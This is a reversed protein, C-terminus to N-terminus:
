SYISKYMDIRMGMKQLVFDSEHQMTNARVASPWIIIIIMIEVTFLLLLPQSLVMEVMTLTTNSSLILVYNM